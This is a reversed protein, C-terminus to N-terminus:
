HVPTLSLQRYLQGSATLPSGPATGQVVSVGAYTTAYSEPTGFSTYLFWRQIRLASSNATLWGVFQNMWTTVANQDYAGIPAFCSTGDACSGDPADTIGDYAWLLGFETDWIPKHAESSLSSLYGSMSTLDNEALTPDTMPTHDWTIPYTHVSWVDIESMAVASLGSTGSSGKVWSSGSLYGECGTCTSDWNLVNPGVIKATPDVGKITSAYYQLETAYDTASVNDQGGVNPENGIIWASGPHARAANTLTAAPVRQITTHNPKISIQAVSGQGGSPTLNGFSYWWTLGTETLVTGLDSSVIVGFHDNVATPTVTPIATPTPTSTPLRAAPVHPLYVVSAASSGAASSESWWAASMGIIATAVVAWVLPRSFLWKIKMEM